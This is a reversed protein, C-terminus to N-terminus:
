LINCWGRNKEPRARRIALENEAFVFPTLVRFTGREETLNKGSMKKKWADQANSLQAVWASGEEESGVLFDKQVDASMKLSFGLCLSVTLM